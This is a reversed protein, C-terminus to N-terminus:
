LASGEEMVKAISYLRFYGYGSIRIKMHDCRRVPLPIEYTRKKTAHYEMVKTENDSDYTIYVSMEANTGLELRLIVRKIYKNFPTNMGIDATTFSWSIQKGTMETEELGTVINGPYTVESPWGIISQPEGSEDAYTEGPFIKTYNSDMNIKFIIYYDGEVSVDTIYNGAMAIGNSTGTMALFQFDVDEIVWTGKTTDYVYLKYNYDADRMCVYYKDRYSAGVAEYLNTTGLKESIISPSGDFVCIGDKAKYYLYQDTVAFSKGSGNQVGRCSVFSVEYNSPKTGYIKHYGNEKFFYVYGGFSVAGTFDEQSGITVAYSDSDLGAYCKWNTPDGQKCAYIEHNDSSCGWIRNEQECLYDMEPLERAFTIDKSNQHTLNIFGAVVLYDDGSDFVLNSTNFDYDNYIWDGTDVGSFTVADYKNFGKGIGSNEKYFKVYTTGLSVWMSTNSDYIKIVVTDQSTDIWYKLTDSPTPASTGTYSNSSTIDDGNYRTLTIVVDSATTTNRVESIEGSQTNYIIGDPYCFLYAGMRVLQRDCDTYTPVDDVKNYDTLRLALNGDFYLGAFTENDVTKYVVYSLKDGGLFALLRGTMIGKNDKTGIVGREARNGLAPYYDNTINEMESFEQDSITPNKNLGAFANVMTVQDAKIGLQPLRM